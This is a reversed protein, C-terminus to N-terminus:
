SYNYTWKIYHVLSAITNHTSHLSDTFLTHTDTHTHAHANANAHTHTPIRTCRHAHTHAYMHMHMQTHTCAHMCIHTKGIHM